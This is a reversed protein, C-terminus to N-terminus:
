LLELDEFSSAPNVGASVQKKQDVIPGGIGSSDFSGPRLSFQPVLEALPQSKVKAKSRCSGGVQEKGDGKVRVTVKEAGSAPDQIRGAFEDAEFLTVPM